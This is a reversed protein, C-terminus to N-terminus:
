LKPTEYLYRKIGRQLLEIVGATKKIFEEGKSGLQSSFSETTIAEAESITRGKVLECLIEIVVNATPDCTCLYKIDEIRQNQIKIYVNLYNQSNHGCIRIKEGVTDLFISPNELSGTYKFGTRLLKRYYQIVQADV